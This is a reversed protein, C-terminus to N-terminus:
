TGPTRWDERKIPLPAFDNDSSVLIANLRLTIAALLLDVDNIQKGMVTASAWFRAAQIWDENELEVWSFLPLISKELTALQTTANTRLHGRLLEYYVPRCVYLTDKNIRAIQLHNLVFPNLKSIDSILNTDLVYIM